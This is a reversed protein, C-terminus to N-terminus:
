RERDKPVLKRFKKNSKKTRRKSKKTRKKSKRKGGKKCMGILVDNDVYSLKSVQIAVEAQCHNSSVVNGGLRTNLSAIPMTKNANTSEVVFIQHKGNVVEDLYSLPVMVGFLGIIDMNLAPGGVINEDRPQFAQDTKKCQYIIKNKDLTNQSIFGKIRSKEIMAVQGNFIFLLNDKDKDEDNNVYDCLQVNEQLIPDFRTLKLGTFPNNESKELSVKDRVLLRTMNDTQPRSHQPPPAPPIITDDAGAVLLLDGIEEHGYQRAVTLATNGTADVVNVDTEYIYMYTGDEEAEDELSLLWEVIDYHGLRSAVILATEGANNTENVDSGSDLLAGLIYQEGVMSARILPTNGYNDRINMDAGAEVVAEVLTYVIDTNGNVVARILATEGNNNRANLDVRVGGEDYALLIKIVEEEDYNIAGMLITEGDNNAKNIDAGKELLLKVIDERGNIAATFLATNNYDSTVNVDVGKELLLNVMRVNDNEVAVFLFWQGNDNKYNVDAGEKFASEVMKYDNKYVGDWLKIDPSEYYPGIYPMKAGGQKNTQKKKTQKKSRTKRKSKKSKQTRRKSKRKGGKKCMGILVDNDVYSLKSVQIAVETQCHNTSVVNGGLRTNLSAIPMTQNANNSEVVFIQHKGNVVEDLYSLPVMVGYLGIITMNLAPGGIINEDRPQFAQDTTRCQYVIMNQDVTDDSTLSKIRSRGIMAVQKGFIFLLNDKDDNVYDCLQADERLIPDYRELPQELITFPNNENKELSVKDRVLLRRKKQRESHIPLHQEIAYKKLIKAIEPNATQTNEEADDIVHRANRGFETYHLDIKGKRKDLMLEIMPIDENFVAYGIATVGSGTTANIDVGISLLYRVAHLNGWETAELLPTTGTNDYREVSAGKEVLYKMITSPKIHRAAYIIAPIDQPQKFHEHEDLITINPNAGKDLYEKVQRPTDEEIALRLYDDINNPDEEEINNQDTPPRGPRSWGSGSGRQRKSRPKRFIEITKSRRNIKLSAM